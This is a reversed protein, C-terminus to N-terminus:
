NEIILELRNEGVSNKNNPDIILDYEKDQQLLIYKNMLKDHLTLKKNNPLSFDSIKLKYTQIAVTKPLSIGLQIRTNESLKVGKAALKINGTSVTFFNFGNNMLKIADNAKNYSNSFNENFNFIVNDYVEEGKYAKIEIRGTASNSRFVTPCSVCVSKNSEAFNLNSVTLAQVFFASYAPIIYSSPIPSVTIFSETQPNRLYFANAVNTGPTAATLVAGIDVPSAYPNGMLNLGTGTTLMPVAVAGINPAGTMTLTVPNPTADAGDLTNAQSKPGRVLVRIGKGRPWNTTSTNDIFALWGADNPSAGDAVAPNFYYASPNNLSTTTFGTGVTQGATTSTTGAPNGTIDIDDTIVSLPQATSFPHSLFRYKRFGGPIYQEININGTIAGTTLTGISATGTADSKLTFKGSGSPVPFITASNIVMRATPLLTINQAIAATITAATAPSIPPTLNIKFMGSVSTTASPAGTIGFSKNSATTFNSLTLNAYALPAIGQVGIQGATGRYYDITSASGLILAPATAANNFLLTAFTNTPVVPFAVNTSFLGGGTSSVTGARGAKFTGNITVTGTPKIAIYQASSGIPGALTSNADVSLNNVTISAGSMDISANILSVNGFSRNTTTTLSTNEFVLELNPDNLATSLSIAITNQYVIKHNGSFPLSIEFNVNGASTIQSGAAITITIAASPTAPTAYTPNGLVIKSGAGTVTFNGTNHNISTTNQIIFIQSATMFDAPSTGTGDALVGWSAVGNLPGTGKYYFTTQAKSIFSTLILVALLGNKLTFVYNKFGFIPKLTFNKM